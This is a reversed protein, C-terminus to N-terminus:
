NLGLSGGDGTLCNGDSFGALYIKGVPPDVLDGKFDKTELGLGNPILDDVGAYEIKYGSCVM